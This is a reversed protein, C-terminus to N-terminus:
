SFHILGGRKILDGFNLEVYHTIIQLSIFHLYCVEEMAWQNLGGQLSWLSNKEKEVRQSLMHIVGTVCKDVSAQNIQPLCSANVNWVLIPYHLM